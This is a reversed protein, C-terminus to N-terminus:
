SEQTGLPRSPVRTGAPGVICHTPGRPFHVRLVGQDFITFFRWVTVPSSLGLAPPELHWLFWGHQLEGAGMHQQGPLELDGVCRASSLTVNSM